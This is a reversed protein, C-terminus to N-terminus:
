INGILEDELKNLINKIKNVSIKLTKKIEEQTKGKMKMKIVTKSVEDHDKLYDEVEEDEYYYLKNGYVIEGEFFNNFKTQSEDFEKWPISEINCANLKHTDHNKKIFKIMSNKVCHSIFTSLRAREPDYKPLSSLLNLVGTQILDDISYVSNKIYVKNAMKRVLNINEEITKAVDINM